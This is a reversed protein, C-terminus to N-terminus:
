QSAVVQEMLAPCNLAQAGLLEHGVFPFMRDCGLQGIRALSLEVAPFNTDLSHERPVVQPDFQGKVLERSRCAGVAFLPRSAKSGASRILPESAAKFIVFRRALDFVLVPLRNRTWNSLCVRGEIVFGPVATGVTPAVEPTENLAQWNRLDTRLIGSRRRTM